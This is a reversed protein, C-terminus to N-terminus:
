PLIREFLDCIPTFPTMFPKRFAKWSINQFLNGTLIPTHKIIHIKPLKTIYGGEILRLPVNIKVIM